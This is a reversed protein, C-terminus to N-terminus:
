KKRTHHFEMAKYEKGWPDKQYSEAQIHDRDVFHEVSRVPVYKDQMVDPAEGTGQFTKTAADYTMTGSFLGTSMNDIWSSVYIKKMNDYGTVGRGVFHSGLWEGEVTEELFRGDMIWAAKSTGHFVEPEDSGPQYFKGTFEWDGVKAELVKHAPGPTGYAIMKDMMANAAADQPKAEVQALAFASGVSALVLAGLVVRNKM